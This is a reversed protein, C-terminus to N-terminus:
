RLRPTLSQTAFSRFNLCIMSFRSDLATFNVALPPLTVTRAAVVTEPNSIATASVPTPIADSWRSIMNSSNRCTPRFLGRFSSPVPSPRGRVFRKMSNCPPAMPTHLSTPAPDVNVNVNGSPFLSTTHPRDQDDFVIVLVQLKGPVHKTELAVRSDLGHSRLFAQTERPM